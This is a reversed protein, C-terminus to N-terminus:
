TSVLVAMQTKTTGVTDVKIPRTMAYRVSRIFVAETTFDRIKIGMAMEM